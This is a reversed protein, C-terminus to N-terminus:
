MNPFCKQSNERAKATKSGGHYFRVEQVARKRETHKSVLKGDFISPSIKKLKNPVLRGNYVTNDAVTKKRYFIVESFFALNISNLASSIEVKVFQALNCFM